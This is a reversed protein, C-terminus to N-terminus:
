NTSYVLSFSSWSLLFSTYFNPPEISNLLPLKHRKILQIFSDKDMINLTASLQLPVFFKSHYTLSYSKKTFRM